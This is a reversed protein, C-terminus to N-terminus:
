QKRDRVPSLPENMSGSRYGTMDLAVHVYGLERLSHSIKDLLQVDFFLSRENAGVEIRAENGHDRVRLERVGTSARILSEAREIRLLKEPTITEGYAVRSSLCPMSPKEHNPLGLFKALQRVEDKMMGADALPRLIGTESLAAAGPRHGKLDEANTGDVVTYGGLEKALYILKNGLEKKCFYCRNAPNFTYNPDELEDTKVIIHKIGIERALSKAEELESAPLSPSDATVAIAKDHLAIKALLAVLTSDVGGSFAVIVKGYRKLEYLISTAKASLESTTESGELLPLGRLCEETLM